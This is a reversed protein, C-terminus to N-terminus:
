KIAQKAMFKKLEKAILHLRELRTGSLTTPKGALIGQGEFYFTMDFREGPKKSDIKLKAAALSERIENELDIIEKMKKGQREEKKIMAIELQDLMIQDHDRKMQDGQEQLAKNAIEGVGKIVHRMCHASVADLTIGGAELLARAKKLDPEQFIDIPYAEAWQAIHQLADRYDDALDVARGAMTLADDLMEKTITM